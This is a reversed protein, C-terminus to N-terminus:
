SGLIHKAIVQKIVGAASTLEAETHESSVTLRLSCVVIPHGASYICNIVYRPPPKQYEEDLYKATVIAVGSAICEDAITQLLQQDSEHCSTPTTVRLHIVPCVDVGCVKVGSM